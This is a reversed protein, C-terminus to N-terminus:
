MSTREHWGPVLCMLSRPSPSLSHGNLPFEFPFRLTDMTNITSFLDVRMGCKHIDDHCLQRTLNRSVLPLKQPDPQPATLDDNAIRRVRGSATGPRTRSSLSAVVMDTM